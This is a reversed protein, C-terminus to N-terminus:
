PATRPMMVEVRAKGFLRPRTPLAPPMGGFQLPYNIYHWKERHEPTGRVDDPWRAALMFLTQDPDVAGALKPAWRTQYDPHQKLIQVVRAIVEPKNVKLEQYAIAGSVMHGPKNFALVSPTIALLFGIILILDM